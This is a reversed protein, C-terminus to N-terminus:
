ARRGYFSETAEGFGAYMSRPSFNLGVSPIPRRKDSLWTEFELYLRQANFGFTPGACTSDLM